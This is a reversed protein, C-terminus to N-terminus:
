SPKPQGSSQSDLWRRVAPTDLRHRCLELGDPTTLVPVDRGFASQWGSDDDVNRHSVDLRDGFAADLDDDM